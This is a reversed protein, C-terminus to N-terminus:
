DNEDQQQRPAGRNGAAEVLKSEGYWLNKM